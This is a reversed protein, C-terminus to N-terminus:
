PHFGRVSPGRYEPGALVLQVAGIVRELFGGECYSLYYRWLRVFREDFGMARVDDRRREFALRWRRLTEAYDLGMEELHLPTLRSARAAAGTLVSVSPLAGGPFVYRQIFDTSRRAQDYNRDAITIAQVAALGGPALMRDVVEFFVPFGRHGVAEIMEVSVVKDFRWGLARPLDRYDLSLLEVRDTLGAEIVRRRAGELQAPSLTTSTVRCGYRGAAHVALAGWGTGIELLHDEPGLRLKRCLRDIKATQAEELTTDGGLGSASGTPDGDGFWASSYTMGDDLFLRFFDNSLDYHDVINRRSGWRTNARGLHYLRAALGRLRALGGDLGATSERNRAFLRILSTLDPSDWAGDLFAEAAGLSGGLAVASWFSPDLVRVEGELGDRSSSGFLHVRGDGSAGTTDRM